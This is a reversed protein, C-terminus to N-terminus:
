QPPTELEINSGVIARFQGVTIDAPTQSQAFLCELMGVAAGADSQLEFIASVGTQSQKRFGLSYGVAENSAPMILQAVRDRSTVHWACYSKNRAAPTSNIAGDALWEAQGIKGRWADPAFRLRFESQGVDILKRAATVPRWTSDAERPTPQPQPVRDNVADPAKGEPATTGASTDFNLRVSSTAEKGDSLITYASSGFVDNRSDRGPAYNRPVLTTHCILFQYTLDDATVRKCDWHNKVDTAYRDSATPPILTYIRQRNRDTERFMYPLDFSYAQTDPDFTATVPANVNVEIDSFQIRHARYAKVSEEIPFKTTVQASARQGGCAGKFTYVALDSKIEDLSTRSWAGLDHNENFFAVERWEGKDIVLDACRIPQAMQFIRRLDADRFRGFIKELQDFFKAGYDSDQPPVERERQADARSALLLAFVLLLLRCNFPRASRPM